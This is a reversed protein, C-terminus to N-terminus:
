KNQIKNKVFNFVLIKNTNLIKHTKLISSESIGCLNIISTKTIENNLQLESNIFYICGSAVCQPAIGNLLGLAESATIINRCLKQFKFPVQLENCFRESLEISSINTKDLTSDVNEFYIKCCKSFTKKDVNLARMVVEMQINCKRNKCSYYLCVAIMGDRVKGKHIEKSGDSHVTTLMKKFMFLTNRVVSVPIGELVVIENLRKKLDMIIKEQYTISMWMNLTQMRGAGSIFTSMSNNPLLSDFAQGCREGGNSGTGDENNGNIWEKGSAILTGLVTGCNECYLYENGEYPSSKECLCKREQEIVIETMETQYIAWIDDISPPCSM